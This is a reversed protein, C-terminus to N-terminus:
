TPGDQLSHQDMKPSHQGMKPSDQGTKPSHQDTKPALNLWRPAMNARSSAINAWCALLFAFLRVFIWVFVYIDCFVGFGWAVSPEGWTPGLNRGPEEWTGGNGRPSTPPLPPSGRYGETVVSPRRCPCPRATPAPARIKMFLWKSHDKGSVQITERALAGHWSGSVPNTTLTEQDLDVCSPADSPQMTTLQTFPEDPWNEVCWSDNSSFERPLKLTPWCIPLCCSMALSPVLCDLTNVWFWFRPPM